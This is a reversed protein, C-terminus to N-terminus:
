QKQSKKRTIKAVLINTNTVRKYAVDTNRFVLEKLKMRKM